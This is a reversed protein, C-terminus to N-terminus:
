KKKEQHDDGGEAFEGESPRGNIEGLVTGEFDAVNGLGLDTGVFTTAKGEKEQFPLLKITMAPVVKGDATKTPKTTLTLDKAVVPTPTKEDNGLIHVTCQKKEHDVLLEAHHKGLDFIVGGNPGKGHVHEVNAHNEKSSKSKEGKNTGAPRGCGALAFALCVMTVWNGQCMKM